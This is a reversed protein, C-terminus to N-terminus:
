QPKERQNLREWAAQAPKYGGKAAQQYWPKAQEPRSTDFEYMQGLQFAANVDGQAALKLFIKEAKFFWKASERADRMEGSAYVKGLLLAATADNQEAAKRAWAAAAAPDEAVGKGQWYSVALGFQSWANGQEAAKRWWTLAEDTKGETQCYAGLIQQAPAYNQAAARRLWERGKDPNKEVGFGQGFMAGLWCQARADGAGALKTMAPACQAFLEQARGANTAGALSRKYLQGLVYQGYPHGQNASKKAWQMAEAYDAGMGQENGLFWAALLGQALADGAEAKARTQKYTESPERRTEPWETLPARTFKIASDDFESQREGREGTVLQLQLTNADVFQLIGRAQWPYVPQDDELCEFRTPTAASDIKYHGEVIRIQGGDRMGCRMTGDARFHFLVAVQGSPHGIWLGVINGKVAPRPKEDPARQLEITGSDFKEPREPTEGPQVDEVHLRLTNPTPMEFIGLTTTTKASRSTSERLDYIDVTRPRASENVRYKGAFREVHQEDKRM